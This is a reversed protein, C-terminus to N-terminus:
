SKEAPARTNTDILEAYLEPTDIDALVGEDALPLLVARHLHRHVVTRAGGELDPDLLEPFLQADFYTPHGREERLVPVVLPPRTRAARRVASVSASRVLPHDVPHYIVGRCERALSRIALRLSTIPGEGPDPNTLVVAGTAEAAERLARDEPVVIVISDCGGDRLSRTVLEVFTQGEHGLLAKPRGMRVSAGACPVVGAIV